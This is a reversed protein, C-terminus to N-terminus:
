GVRPTGGALVTQMSSRDINQGTMIVAARRGQLRDREKILAALAAAGAGEACSHTASFMTRMAEAIEDDSVEVIREAGRRIIELAAPDPVRVALGDAFTLASNTSIVRGAEVSLRYANASDSVVGVIRTSLGLLDRTGILGCIGSGLGIPVYVTDLDGAATFLEYAYTAVGVVLDRHFSPAYRLGREAALAVAREKAEDFDRGHEILEAGLARMAENKDASNDHPVVITVPVGARAGAAAISQGHNGRTATIIGNPQLRERKLRDFYVLGGRLKFAGIPTHNEHKVVVEVGTRAKLLPWAYQPTPPVGTRVIPLVDELEALTFM